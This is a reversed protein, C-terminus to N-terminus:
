WGIFREWLWEGGGGGGNKVVCSEIAMFDGCVCNYGVTDSHDKLM